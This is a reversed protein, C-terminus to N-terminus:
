YGGYMGNGMRSPEGASKEPKDNASRDSGACGGLMLVLACLVAAAAHRFMSKTVM